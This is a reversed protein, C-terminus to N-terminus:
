AARPDALTGDMRYMQVDTASTKQEKYDKRTNKVSRDIAEM